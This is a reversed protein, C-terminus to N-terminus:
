WVLKIELQFRGGWPNGQMQNESVIIHHKGKEQIPYITEQGFPGDANGKSDMIQTIRINSISDQTFLKLNLKNATDSNLVFVLRQRPAKVTDIKAKGSIIKVFITDTKEPYTKQASSNQSISDKQLQADSFVKPVTKKKEREFKLSDAYQKKDFEQPKAIPTDPNLNCSVMWFPFLLFSLKAWRM